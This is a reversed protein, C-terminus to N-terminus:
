VASALRRQEEQIHSSLEAVREVAEVLTTREEEGAKALVGEMVEGLFGLVNRIVESGDGTLRVLVIRRDQPHARREVLGERVLREVLGTTTPVSVGLEDALIRMPAGRAPARDLALLALVQSITLGPRVSDLLPGIRLNKLIQPLLLVIRRVQQPQPPSTPSM